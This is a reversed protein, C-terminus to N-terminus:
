DGLLDIYGTTDKLVNNNKLREVLKTKSSTSYYKQPREREIGKIHINEKEVDQATFLVKKDHLHKIIRQAKRKIVGFTQMIDEITAGRGNEDFVREALEKVEKSKIYKRPKYM